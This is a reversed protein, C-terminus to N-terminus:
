PRKKLDIVPRKLKDYWATIEALNTLQDHEGQPGFVDILENKHDRFQADGGHQVMPKGVRGNIFDQIMRLRPGIMHPQDRLTSVLALNAREHGVVVVDKLDYDGHIWKGNLKLCGFHRSNVDVDVSYERRARMLRWAEDRAQDGLSLGPNNSRQVGAKMLFSGWEELAEIKKAPSFADPHFGPVIVLGALSKGNVDRDATKPKCDIPKPVYDHLPIYQLSAPNIERVLIWCTFKVAADRFAGYDVPRM